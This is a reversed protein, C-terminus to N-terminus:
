EKVQRVHTTSGPAQAGALIARRTLPARLVGKWWLATVRSSSILDRSFYLDCATTFSFRRHVRECMCISQRSIIGIDSTYNYATM